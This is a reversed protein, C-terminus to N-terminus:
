KPPVIFRVMTVSKEKNTRNVQDSNVLYNIIFTEEKANNYYLILHMILLCNISNIYFLIFDYFNYRHMAMQNCHSKKKVWFLQGIPMCADASM